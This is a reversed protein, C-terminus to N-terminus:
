NNRLWNLARRLNLGSLKGNDSFLRWYGKQGAKKDITNLMARKRTVSIEVDLRGEEEQLEELTKPEKKM